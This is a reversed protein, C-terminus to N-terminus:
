IKGLKHQKSWSKVLIFIPTMLGKVLVLKNCADFTHGVVKVVQYPGNKSHIIKRLKNVCLFCPELQCKFIFIPKGWARIKEESKGLRKYSVRLSAMTPTDYSTDHMGHQCFDSTACCNIFFSITTTDHQSVTNYCM